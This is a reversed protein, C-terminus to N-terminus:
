FEVWDEQKLNWNLKLGMSGEILQKQEEFLPYIKDYSRQSFKVKNDPSTKNFVKFEKHVMKKLGLFQYTTDLVEQTNSILDEFQLVLVKDSGFRDLYPKIQKYYLTTNIPSDGVEIFEELSKNYGRFKVMHYFSSTIREFPNRILYIIKAEPSELKIKDPIGYEMTRQDITYHTSSDGFYKQNMFSDSIMYKSKLELRNSINKGKSKWHDRGWENFIFYGPEKIPASMYIDPHESLYYHLSSTGCKQSGVIILNPVAKSVDILQFKRKNLRLNSSLKIHDQDLHLARWKQTLFNIM